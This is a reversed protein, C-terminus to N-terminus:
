ERLSAADALAVVRAGEALSCLRRRDDALVARHEDLPGTGILHFVASCAM